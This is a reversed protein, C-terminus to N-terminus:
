YTFLSPENLTFFLCVLVLSNLEMRWYLQNLYFSYRVLCEILDFKILLWAVHLNYCAFLNIVSFWISIFVMLCILDNFLFNIYFYTNETLWILYILLWAVHLSYCTFLNILSFWISIFVMLCLFDKFSFNILRLVNFSFNFSCNFYIMLRLDSSLFNIYIKFHRHAPQFVTFSIYLPCVM